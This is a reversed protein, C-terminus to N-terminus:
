PMPEPWHVGLGACGSRRIANETLQPVALDPWVTLGAHPALGSALPEVPLALALEAAAALAVPGDFLHSVVLGTNRAKGIRAIRLTPLFGGLVMPKLVFVRCSPVLSLREAAGPLALTEDAAIPVPSPGMKLLLYPIVPQEVFEPEFEALARLNESAETLDWAGNADLRLRISTGFVERVERLLDIEEAFRGRRGIKIKVVEIGRAAATRIEALLASAEDEQALAALPITRGETEGRLLEAISVRREQAALDLLATELAFRAAAALPDLLKASTELWTEIPLDESLAPIDSVPLERLTEECRDITDSSFGPLPSAEGIGVRGEEDALRLLIGARETYAARASWAKGRVAGVIRRVDKAVIRVVTGM